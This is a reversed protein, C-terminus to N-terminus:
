NKAGRREGYHCEVYCCDPCCFSVTANKPINNLMFYEAHRCGAHHCEAYRLEALFISCGPVKNKYHVGM